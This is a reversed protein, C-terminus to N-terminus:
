KKKDDESSMLNEFVSNKKSEYGQLWVYAWPVSSRMYPWLKENCCNSPTESFNKIM